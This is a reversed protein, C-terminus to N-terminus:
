IIEYDIDTPREKFERTLLKLHTIYEDFSIKQTKYQSSLKEMLYYPTFKIFRFDSLIYVMGKAEYIFDKDLLENFLEEKNNLINICESVTLNKERLTKLLSYVDSDVLFRILKKNEVETNSDYNTFFSFLKNKYDEIVQHEVEDSKVPLEVPPIRTCSLDKVLFYCENIGPIIRKEILRERIFSILILDTNIASFGYDQRLVNALENRSIAGNRLIKLITHKLKDHFFNLLNVEIDFKSYNKITNFAESIARPLKNTNISEILEKGIGALTDPYDRIIHEINKKTYKYVIILFYIEGELEQLISIYQNQSEEDFLEVFPSEKSLEHKTWVKLLLEQPPFSREPPYQIIPEPGSSKNWHVIIIRQM